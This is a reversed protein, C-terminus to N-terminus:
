NSYEEVLCNLYQWIMYEGLKAKHGPFVERFLWTHDDAMDAMSVRALLLLYYWDKPPIALLEEVHAFFDPSITEGTAILMGECEERFRAVNAKNLREKPEGTEVNISTHLNKPLPADDRLMDFYVQYKEKGMGGDAGSLVMDFTVPVSELQKKIREKALSPLSCLRRLFELEYEEVMWFFEFHNLIFEQAAGTYFKLKEAMTFFEERDLLDVDDMQTYALEEPSVYREGAMTREEEVRKFYTVIMNQRYSDPKTEGNRYRNISKQPIGVARALKAESLNYRFLMKNLYISFPEKQTM